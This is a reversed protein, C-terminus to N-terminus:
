TLVWWSRNPQQFIHFLKWIRRGFLVGGCWCNVYPCWSKSLSLTFSFFLFEHKTGGTGISDGNPWLMQHSVIINTNANSEIFNVISKFSYFPNIDLNCENVNVRFMRKLFSRFSLFWLLSRTLVESNYYKYHSSNRLMREKM